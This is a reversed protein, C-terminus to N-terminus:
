LFRIDKVQNKELKKNIKYIIEKKQFLLENRWVPTSTQITLVGKYYNKIKTHKKISSGVIKEWSSFIKGQNLPHKIKEQSLVEKLSSKISRFV